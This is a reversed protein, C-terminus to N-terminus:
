RGEVIRIEEETLGICWGCSLKHLNLRSLHEYVDHIKTPASRHTRGHKQIIMTKDPCVCLDAGVFSM